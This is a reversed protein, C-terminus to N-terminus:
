ALRKAAHEVDPAVAHANEAGPLLAAALVVSNMSPRSLGLDRAAEAGGERLGAALDLQDVFGRQRESRSAKRAPLCVGTNKPEAM